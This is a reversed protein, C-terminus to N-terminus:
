QPVWPGCQYNDACFRKFPQGEPGVGNTEWFGGSRQVPQNNAPQSNNTPRGGTASPITHDNEIWESFKSPFDQAPYIFPNNPDSPEHMTFNGDADYGVNTPEGTLMFPIVSCFLAAGAVIILVWGTSIEWGRQIPDNANRIASKKNDKFLYLIMGILILAAILM